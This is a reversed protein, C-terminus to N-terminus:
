SLDSQLLRAAWEMAALGGLWFASFRALQVLGVSRSTVLSLSQGSSASRRGAVSRRGAEYGHALQTLLNPLTPLLLLKYL